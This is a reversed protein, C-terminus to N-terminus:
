YANFNMALMGTGSSYAREKLGILFALHLCSHGIITHFTRGSMRNKTWMKKRRTGTHRLWPKDVKGKGMM